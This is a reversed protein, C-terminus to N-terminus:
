LSLCSGFPLDTFFLDPVTFVPLMILFSYLVIFETLIGRFLETEDRQFVPRPDYNNFCHRVLEFGSSFLWIIEIECM